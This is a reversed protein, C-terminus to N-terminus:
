PEGKSPQEVATAVVVDAGRKRSAHHLLLSVFAVLLLLALVAGGHTCASEVITVDQFVVTMTPPNDLVTIPATPLPDLSPVPETAYGYLISQASGEM